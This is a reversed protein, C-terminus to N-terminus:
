ICSRHALNRYRDKEENSSENWKQRTWTKEAFFHRVCARYGTEYNFDNFDKVASAGAPAVLSGLLLPLLLRKM